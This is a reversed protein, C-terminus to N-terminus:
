SGLRRVLAVFGGVVAVIIAAIIFIEVAGLGGM